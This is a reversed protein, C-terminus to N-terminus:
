SSEIEDIFLYLFLILVREVKGLLQKNFTNAIEQTGAFAQGPAGRMQAGFVVAKVCLHFLHM